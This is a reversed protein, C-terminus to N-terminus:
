EHKRAKKGNHATQLNCQYTLLPRSNPSIMRRVLKIIKAHTVRPDPPSHFCSLSPALPTADVSDLLQKSNGSRSSASAVRGPVLPCKPSENIAGCEYVLKKCNMADCTRCSEFSIEGLLQDILFFLLSLESTSHPSSPFFTRLNHFM